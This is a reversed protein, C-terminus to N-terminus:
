VAASIMYIGILLMLQAPAYFLWIWLGRYKLKLSGFDCLAILMDSIFFSIGAFLLIFAKGNSAIAVSCASAAMASVLIGYGLTGIRLALIQNSNRAISFIWILLGAFVFVAFFCWWLMLEGGSMFSFISLLTYSYVLMACGFAGMGWLFYQRVRNSIPKFQMLMTDGIWSLAMAACALATYRNPRICLLIVSLLVLLTTVYLSTRRFDKRYFREITRTFRRKQKDALEVVVKESKNAIDDQWSSFGEDTLYRNAVLNVKQAVKAVILYIKICLQVVWRIFRVGMFKDGLKRLQRLLFKKLVGMFLKLSETLKM